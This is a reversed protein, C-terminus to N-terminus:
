VSQFHGVFTNSILLHPKLNNKNVKIVRVRVTVSHLTCFPFAMQKFAAKFMFTISHNVVPEAKGDDGECM